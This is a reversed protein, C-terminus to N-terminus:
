LQLNRVVFGSNQEIKMKHNNSNYWLNLLYIRTLDKVVNEPYYHKNEKTKAKM